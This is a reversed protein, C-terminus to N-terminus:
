KNDKIHHILSRVYNLHDIVYDNDIEDKFYGYFNVIKEYPNKLIKDFDYLQDYNNSYVENIVEEIIHNRPIIQPNVNKFKRLKNNKYKEEWNKFIKKDLTNNELDIFTNTYDLKYIHM